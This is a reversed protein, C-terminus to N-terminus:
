EGGQRGKMRNRVDTLFDWYYFDPSLSYAKAAWLEASVTNGLALNTVASEYAALASTPQVAFALSFNGLAAGDEGKEALIQGLALNAGFHSPDKELAKKLLGSAIYRKGSLRMMLAESYLADASDGQNSSIAAERVRKSEEYVAKKQRTIQLSSAAGRLSKDLRLAREYSDIAQDFRGTREYARGLRLHITSDFANDSLAETYSFISNETEGMVQYADGMGVLAAAAYYNSIKLWVAEGARAGDSPIGRTIQRTDPRSHALKYGRAYEALAHAPRGNQLFSNGMGIRIRASRPAHRVMSSFFTFDDRWVTNRRMTQASFFFVMLATAAFVSNRRWDREKWGEHAALGAIAIGLLAALGISPFYLFHPPTFFEREPHFLFFYSFPLLCALFWLIFFSVHPSKRLYFISIALILFVIATPVVAGFSAVRGVLPTFTEFGLGRPLLMVHIYSGAVQAFTMLRHALEVSDSTFSSSIPVVQSRWLLYVVAISSIPVLFKLKSKPEGDPRALEYAALIFPLAIANEKTLLALAFAICSCFLLAAPGNSDTQRARVYCYISTLFFVACLPDSRGSVGAVSDAVAPHVAFLAAAIFSANAGLKLRRLLLFVLLAAASHFVLNSFHYGRASRGWLSHDAMYSLLVMPRYYDYEVPGTIPRGVSFFPRTFYLKVHKPSRIAANNEIMSIDDFTFGNSLTNSFVALSLIVLALPFGWKKLRATSSNNECVQCG